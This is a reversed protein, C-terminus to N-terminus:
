PSCPDARTELRTSQVTINNRCCDFHKRGKATWQSREEEFVLSVCENEREITNHGRLANRPVVILLRQVPRLEHGEHCHRAHNSPM